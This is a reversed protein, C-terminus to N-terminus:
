LLGKTAKFHIPNFEEDKKNHESHLIEEAQSKINLRLFLRIKKRRSHAVKKQQENGFPMNHKKSIVLINQGAVNTLNERQKNRNQACLHPFASFNLLQESLVM